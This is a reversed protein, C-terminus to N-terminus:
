SSTTAIQTKKRRRKWATSTRKDMEEPPPGDQNNIPTPEIYPKIFKAPVWKLGAPTSVCAYGRGWTILPFPGRIQHTEPDKILVPLQEKLKAKASNTFHRYVPPLPEDFSGNLFNITFLARSLRVVPPDLRTGGQQQNLVRKLTQHAREVVSQGTPSHPIGTSHGIGWTDCFAKFNKSAYAPGNDTKINAPVGLTAFALLLHKRADSAKEGSHALAFM